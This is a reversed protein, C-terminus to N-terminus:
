VKDVFLVNGDKTSDMINKKIQDLDSNSLVNNSKPRVYLILLIIVLVLSICSIILSALEM